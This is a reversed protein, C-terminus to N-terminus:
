FSASLQSIDSSTEVVGFSYLFNWGQIDKLGEALVVEEESQFIDCDSM